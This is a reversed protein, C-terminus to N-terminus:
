NILSTDVYGNDVTKRQNEKAIRRNQFKSVKVLARSYNKKSKLETRKFKAYIFDDFEISISGDYVRKLNGEFRIEVYRVVGIEKM